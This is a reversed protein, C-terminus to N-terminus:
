TDADDDYGEPFRQRWEWASRVIDGLSSRIPQWGLVEAARSSDAILTDPDGPRRDSLIRPVSRGTVQEITDLVELVSAGDRTGLNIPDLTQSGQALLDLAVVHADILDEVHVYDRIATGDRTDYNTGYVTVPGDRGIATDIARPILHTEPRHDEGITGSAGAVNFYRFIASRVGYAVSYSQLIREAALKSAGYANIPQLPASEPIPSERTAGYVAATSSFVVIKMGAERIADLLQLTGYANVSWYPAPDSVSEPAITLAAFHLVAEIDHARLTELLAARDRIDIQALSAPITLAATHGSHLNDIVTVSDGRGVLRHVAVSGIYGAGGTVAINV